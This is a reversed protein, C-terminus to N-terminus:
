LNLSCGHSKLLLDQRSIPLGDTMLNLEQQLERASLLLHRAIYDPINTSAHPVHIIVPSISDGPTLNWNV